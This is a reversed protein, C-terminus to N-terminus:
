RQVVEDSEQLGSVIEIDNETELGTKVERQEITKDAKLVEVFTKDDRQILTTVPVTLVNVRSAVSIKETGNMGLKYKLADNPAMLDARVKFVTGNDSQSSTFSIYHITAQIPEDPYADLLISVQQGEHVLRIDAEDVDAEFYLTKPDVIEFSDAGSLIVGATKAPSSILIGNLPSYLSANKLAIDQQEVTLVANDLTLENKQLTRDVKQDGHIDKNTDITQQFDVRSSSYNNLQQQLTKQLLAKDITAITQWKKVVDGEQAGIYTVKGGALFKLSARQTANITGSVELVKELNQVVPHIVQYTEKPKAARARWVFVLLLILLVGALIKWHTKVWLKM